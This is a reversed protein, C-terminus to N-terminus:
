LWSELCRSHAPRKSYHSLSSIYENPVSRVKYRHTTGLWGQVGALHANTGLFPPFGASAKVHSLCPLPVSPPSPPQLLVVFCLLLSRQFPSGSAPCTVTYSMREKPGEGGNCINSYCAPQVTNQAVLWSGPLLLIQQLWSRLIQRCMGLLQLLCHLLIKLREEFHQKWLQCVNCLESRRDGFGLTEFPPNTNPPAM